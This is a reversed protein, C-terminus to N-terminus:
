ATLSWSSVTTRNGKIVESLNGHNIGYNKCFENRTMSVTEKTKVNTFTYITHDFKWNNTGLLHHKGSAIRRLQVNRQMSGDGLFPHTGESVRKNQLENGVFANKGNKIQKSVNLKALESIEESTKHLRQSAILYCAYYDGQSYHIDYHEQITVARLNAPNNNSHNGDIHHIDYKKGTLDNPIPGHHNEYIKHYNNTTCYICM